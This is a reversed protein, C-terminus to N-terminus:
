IRVGLVGKFALAFVLSAIFFFIVWNDAGSTWSDRLGYQIDIWQVPSDAQFSPEGPHLLVDMFTRDPRLKSVRMLGEGVSLSKTIQEGGVDFTMQHQGPQRGRIEWWVEHGAPARLPGAVVEYADSGQMTVTPMDGDAALKMVVVAQGDAPLPAFQYWLGMQSLLLCIPVMMVALPILSNVFLAGAGGLLRGQAALTVPLSDKFLKMTLLDAKIGDRVRGIAKQNSTLKFMYLMGVGALCSILTNSLWGPMVGTPMLVIRGVASAAINLAALIGTLVGGISALITPGCANM